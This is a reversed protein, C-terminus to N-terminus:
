RGLWFIIFRVLTDFEWVKTRKFHECQEWMIVLLQTQRCGCVPFSWTNTGWCLWAGQRALPVLPVLPLPRKPFFTTHCAKFSMGVFRSLRPWKSNQRCLRCFDLHPSQPPRSTHLCLRRRYAHWIHLVNGPFRCLMLHTCKHFIRVPDSRYTISPKWCHMNHLSYVKVHFMCCQCASVKWWPEDAETNRQPTLGTTRVKNPRTVKWGVLLTSKRNCGCSLVASSRWQQSDIFESFLSLTNDHRTARRSWPLNWM